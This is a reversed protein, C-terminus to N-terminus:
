YVFTTSSNGTLGGSTATASVNYTGRPDKGKLRVTIRAVGGANTTASYSSTKGAPSLVSFSVPVGALPATGASVTASIQYGNSKVVSLAVSLSSVCGM